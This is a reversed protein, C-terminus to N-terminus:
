DEAPVLKELLERLESLRKELAKVEERVDQVSIKPAPEREPSTLAGDLKKIWARCLDPVSGDLWAEPHDAVCKELVERAKGPRGLHFYGEGTRATAAAAYNRDPSRALRSYVAVGEEYRGLLFYCHGIHLSDKEVGIAHRAVYVECAADIGSQKVRSFWDPEAAAATGALVLVMLLAVTRAGHKM